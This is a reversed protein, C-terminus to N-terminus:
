DYRMGGGPSRSTMGNFPNSKTILYTRSQGYLQTTTQVSAFGNGAAIDGIPMAVFITMPNGVYGVIPYVPLVTFGKAMAAFSPSGSATALTALGKFSTTPTGSGYASGSVFISNQFWTAISFGHSGVIWTFYQGTYAGTKDLSREFGWASVTQSSTDDAWLLMSLRSGSGDGSFYCNFYTNSGKSAVGSNTQYLTQAAMSTGTLTGLGNSGTGCQVRVQPGSSATAETGYEIKFYIPLTSFLSDNSNKWVEYGGYVGAAPTTVTGWNIQGTDATQVLGLAAIATSIGSGWQRFNADTSNDFLLLKRLTAM